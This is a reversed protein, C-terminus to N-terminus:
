TLYLGQPAHQAHLPPPAQRSNLNVQSKRPSLAEHVPELGHGAGAQGCGRSGGRELALHGAGEKWEKDPRQTPFGLATGLEDIAAEFDDASVGFRLRNLIAEVHLLLEEPNVM